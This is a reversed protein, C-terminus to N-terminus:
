VKMKLIMTQRRLRLRFCDGEDAAGECAATEAAFVVPSSTLLMAASLLACLIRKKM